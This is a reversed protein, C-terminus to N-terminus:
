AALLNTGFMDGATQLNEARAATMDWLPGPLCPEPFPPLKDTKAAQFPSFENESEGAFGAFGELLPEKGQAILWDNPTYCGGPLDEHNM